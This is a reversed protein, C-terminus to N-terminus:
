SRVQCAKMAKGVSDYDEKFAKTYAAKHTNYGHDLLAGVFKDPNTIGQVVSGYQRLWDKIADDVSIYGKNGAAEGHRIINVGFPNNIPQNHDLGAKDWGGEKVAMTLMMQHTTQLDRAMALLPVALWDFFRRKNVSCSGVQDLRFRGQTVGTAIRGLVEDDTLQNVLTPVLSRLQTMAFVNGKAVRLERLLTARGVTSPPDGPQPHTVLELRASLPIVDNQM